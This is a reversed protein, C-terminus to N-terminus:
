QSETTVFAPAISLLMARTCAFSCEDDHPQANGSNTLPVIFAAAHADAKIVGIESYRRCRRHLSPSADAERGRRYAKAPIHRLYIRSICRFAHILAELTLGSILLIGLMTGSVQIDRTM